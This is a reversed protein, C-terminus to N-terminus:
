QRLGQLQDVQHAQAYDPPIHCLLHLQIGDLPIWRAYDVSGRQSGRYRPGHQEPRASYRGLRRYNLQRGDIRLLLPDHTHCLRRVLAGRRIRDLYNDLEQLHHLCPHLPVQAGLHWHLDHRHAPALYPVRNSDAVIDRGLHYVCVSRRKTAKSIVTPLSVLPKVYPFLQCASSLSYM